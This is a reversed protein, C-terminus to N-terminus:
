KQIKLTKSEVMRGNTLKVYYTGEPLQSADFFAAHRGTKTPQADVVKLVEKGLVDYIVVSIESEVKVDYNVIGDRKVPNPAIVGFAIEKSSKEDLWAQLANDGCLPDFVYTAPVYDTPIYCIDNGAADVWVANSVLIDSRTEDERTVRPELEIQAAYNDINIDAGAVAVTMIRWTELDTTPDHSVFQRTMAVNTPGDIDSNFGFADRKFTVDFRYGRVNANRNAFSQKALIPVTVVNGISARYEKIGDTADLDGAGLVQPVVDGIGTLLVITDKAVGELTFFFKLAANRPGTATPTFEVPVQIDQNPALTVPTFTTALEFDGADNWGNENVIQIDTITINETTSFNAFMGDLTRDKCTFVTAYDAGQAVYMNTVATIRAPAQQNQTCSPTEVQVEIDASYVRAENGTTGTVTVVQVGGPNLSFNTPTMTFNAADGNKAIINVVRLVDSGTNRVEFTTTQSANTKVVGLDMTPTVTVMQLVPAIRSGSLKTIPKIGAATVAVLEAIQPTEDPAVTPDFEVIYQIGEEKTQNAGLVFGGLRNPPISGVIRYSNRGPGQIEVTIVDNPEMQDNYLTDIYQPRVLCNTPGFGKDLVTLKAGPVQSIGVLKTFNKDLGAFKGPINTVYNVTIEHNGLRSPTFCFEVEQSQGPEIIVPFTQSPGIKFDPNGTSLDHENIVLRYKGRNWIKIKTCKSQGTDVSGFNFDEAYIKPIVGEGILAYAFPVCKTGILLSDLTVLTDTPTYCLQITTTENPKLTKNISSPTVKFTGGIGIGKIMATTLELDTQQDNRLTVTMCSDTGYFVPQFKFPAEPITVLKPASYFYEYITDNGAMDVTYIAAYADQTKDIVRLKYTTRVAGVEFKPDLEFNYNVSPKDWRIDGIATILEAIVIRTDDFTDKPMLHTETLEVDFDGCNEIRKAEYPPVPDNSIVKLAMGAPWGYSEVNAYGYLYIGMPTPAEAIWTVEEGSLKVRQAVYDSNPLPLAGGAGFSSLPKPTDKGKKLKVQGIFDKHYVVTAFHEFSGGGGGQDNRPTRFIIRKQFQERPILTVTFPDGPAPDGFHGQEYSYDMVLFRKGNVSRITTPVTQQSVEFWQGANIQRESGNVTIRNNDEASLVRLYDGCKIRSNQPMMFYETGWRDVSPIMEILHDKSNGDELEIEARQHGTLFGIPKTAKVHTGTLDGVGYEWGTSTVLYTQGKNLTVKWESGENQSITTGDEPGATVEGKATNATTKITVETGDYPAVILFEGGLNSHNIFYYNDDPYSLCYYEQGLGSLPIALYGDTTLDNDSYGYVVCPATSTVRIARYMPTERQRTESMGVDMAFRHTEDPGLTVTQTKVIQKGDGYTEVTIKNATGTAVFIALRKAPTDYNPMFGIWFEKGESSVGQAISISPLLIQLAICAGLLLLPIRKSILSQVKM